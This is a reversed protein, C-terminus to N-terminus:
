TRDVKKTFSYQKFICEDQGFILLPKQGKPFRVSLNGGYPLDACIDMFLPHDDVHYEVLTLVTGDDQVKNYQYGICENIENNRIMEDSEEKSVPIWRHALMEYGFYRTIFNSRYNVNEPKEHSDVYYTKKRTEYKFGLNVLWKHLTATTLCKLGSEGLLRNLCMDDESEEKEENISKIIEPTAKDFLFQHINNSSLSDLNQRVYDSFEEYLDPNNRFLLPIKKRGVRATALNPFANTTQFARFWSMLTLPDKIEFVKENKKNNFSYEDHDIGEEDLEEEDDGDTSALFAHNPKSVSWVINSCIDKWTRDEYSELAHEM